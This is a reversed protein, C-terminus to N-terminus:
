SNPNITRKESEAEDLERRVILLLVLGIQLVILLSVLSWFSKTLFVGAIWCGIILHAVRRVKKLFKIWEIKSRSKQDLFWAWFKNIFFYEVFSLLLLVHCLGGKIHPYKDYNYLRFFALLVITLCTFALVRPTQVRFIEWISDDDPDQFQKAKSIIRTSYWTVYVWFLLAIIFCLFEAVTSKGKPDELTIVMLDKGQTIHWFIFYGLLLFMIPPFFLWFSRLLCRWTHALFFQGLVLLRKNEISLAM